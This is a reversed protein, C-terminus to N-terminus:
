RSRDQWLYVATDVESGDGLLQPQIDVKYYEDGEFEAKALRLWAREQGARPLHRWCAHLCLGRVM